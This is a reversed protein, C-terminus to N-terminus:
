DNKRQILNRALNNEIFFNKNFQYIFNKIIKYM